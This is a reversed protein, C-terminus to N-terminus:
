KSRVRQDVIVDPEMDACILGDTNEVFQRHLLQSSLIGVLAMNDIETPRDTKELKAILKAVKGPDFLSAKKLTSESLMDKVYGSSKEHLLSQKVPARYPHKERHVIDGPLENEYTKRLIYKETLGRIKWKPPVKGMFELIRHDLFPLRIELSHAMAVRDGQQALLYNSMFLKMELYQAKSLGNWKEYDAPLSERLLVTGDYRGITHKLDDSFFTKIKEANNWRIRHSYFPDNTDELGQAFFSQMMLRQRPDNFIYPYLRSILLPRMQSNPQRAWFRRVKAERFINYGGFVEDAGEGTLVVKLGVKNVKESLLYLPVPATRLLPKECHLIVGPLAEAIKANSTIVEHHHVNLFAVMKKQYEGEDYEPEDFRIGFTQVNPNFHKKVLMTVISSDLGGSLYTGVPVDSRLRLRISDYLLEEIERSINKAPWNILKSEPYFPIEWYKREIVKGDAATLCHGPPLERIDKFATSGDLTTWFTFIQELAIPDIERKVQDCMLIAKIESGFLLMGNLITYYLPRIGVRDRALFLNQKKTDWIAFVFQGNLENLCDAGKEEYLHLIVETDTQTYFRHGRKKLDVRLEPYNFVEGNYVIWLTQDENHIPQTGSSLDIISLRDNVLGVRDDLYIGKEDPGRHHLANMMRKLLTLSISQSSQFNFIGAIGCM